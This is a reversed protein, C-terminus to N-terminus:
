TPYVRIQRSSKDQVTRVQQRRRLRGCLEATRGLYFGLEEDIERALLGPREKVLKMVREPESQPLDDEIDEGCLWKRGLEAFRSYTIKGATMARWAPDLDRWDSVTGKRM